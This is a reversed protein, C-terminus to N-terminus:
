VNELVENILFKNRKISNKEASIISTVDKIASAVTDNIVIYDYNEAYKIEEISTSLRQNIVDDSETGRGILRAQLEKLNPPIIFILVADPYAKKVQMAGQVEIELFVDKGENISELIEKKPTGYYNECYVAYELMGNNEILQEFESRSIFYYHSGNIEGKRPARTTASISLYIKPNIKLFDHIITGKGSGSPGSLVVLLGKKSM